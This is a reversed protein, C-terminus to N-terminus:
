SSTPKVSARGSLRFITGAVVGLVAVGASALSILGGLDASRPAYRFTVTQRGPGVRCAMFDGYARQISVPREGIFAKWGPHWSETFILLQEAPANVDIVTEGPRDRVISTEGPFSDPLNVDKEVIAVLRPDITPLIDAPQDSQTVRGVLRARPLPDTVQRSTGDAFFLWRIGVLRV